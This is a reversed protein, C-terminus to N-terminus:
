NHHPQYDPLFTGNRFRGSDVLARRLWEQFDVPGDKPLSRKGGARHNMRLRDFALQAFAGGLAEPYEKAAATRFQGSEDKGIAVTQPRQVGPIKWAEMGRWFGPLGTHLLATPKVSSAGWQYQQIQNYRVGELRRMAMMIPSTWTSAKEEDRPIAPHESVFAAGFRWVLMLLYLTQLHLQSGLQVQRLEKAKLGMLGWLEAASRLPRPWKSPDVDEPLQHRAESYTECPSGALAFAVWGSLFLHEIHSWSPSGEALNGTETSVATDLSLISVAFPASSCLKALQSHFDGQRRRGSFLHVVIYAEGGSPDRIMPTSVDKDSRHGEHRVMRLQADWEKQNAYHSPVMVTGQSNYRRGTARVTRHPVAVQPAEVRRKQGQLQSWIREGHLISQCPPLDRLLHYFEEEVIKEAEGDEWDDLLNRMENRGWHLFAKAWDDVVQKPHDEWNQTWRDQLQRRQRTDYGGEVFDVFWEQTQGNYFASAAQQFDQTLENRQEENDREGCHEEWEEQLQQLRKQDLTLLPQIPGAIRKAEVRTHGKQKNDMYHREHEEVAYGTSQLLAFCKNAQGNRPIYSLHQYLRATTWCHLQCAPCTSGSVFQWEPAHRGHCKWMHVGRGQPTSFVRDCHNCPFMADERNQTVEFPHPNWCLGAQEVVSYIKRHWKRVGAMIEEQKLHQRVARAIIKKWHKPNNKWWQSWLDLDTEKDKLDDPIIHPVTQVLWRMDERLGSRWSNKCDTEEQLLAQHLQDPGYSYLRGAYQLRDRALRVRSDLLQHRGYLEETTMPETKWFQEGLVDRYIKTTFARLRNLQRVTPDSWAAQGFTLRSLILSDVLKLRTSTRIHRNAFISRRMEYYAQKAQGLRMDMELAGSNSAVFQVGLHKYHPVFHLFHGEQGEDLAVGAAIGLLFEERVAPAGTGRLALVASTKGKAFSLAFGRKQFIDGAIQAIRKMALPLYKPCHTECPIAVDDSWIVTLYHKQINTCVNLWVNDHLAEEIERVMDMMLVHFCLDAIPSGPRTGRRTRYIGGDHRMTYWTDTHVEALLEIMWPPVGMHHLVGQGGQQRLYEKTSEALSLDEIIQMFEREDKVGSLQERIVNHFANKIDIFLVGFSKGKSEAISNLTRLYQAGFHVEQHPFGGLVGAPRQQAVVDRLQARLHAHFRKALSPLLMIARYSDARDWPGRKFIPALIGGKWQIPETGTAYVKM